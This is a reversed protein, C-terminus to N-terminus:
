QPRHEAVQGDACLGSRNPKTLREPFHVNEQEPPVAPKRSLSSLLHRQLEELTRTSAPICARRAQRVPEGEGIGTLVERGERAEEVLLGREKQLRRNRRPVPGKLCTTTLVCAVAGSQGALWCKPSLPPFQRLYSIRLDSDWCLKRDPLHCEHKEGKFRVQTRCYQTITHM